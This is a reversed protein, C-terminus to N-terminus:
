ESVPRTENAQYENNSNSDTLNINLAFESNTHTSPTNNTQNDFHDSNRNVQNVRRDSETNANDRYVNSM